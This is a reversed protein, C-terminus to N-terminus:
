ILCAIVALTVIAHIDNQRNSICCMSACPAPKASCCCAALLPMGSLADWLRDCTAASLTPAFVVFYVSSHQSLSLALTDLNALESTPLRVTRIGEAWLEQWACASM